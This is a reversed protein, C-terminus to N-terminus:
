ALRRCGTTDIRALLDSVRGKGPIQVAPAIDALPLLVFAREALRPHPVQLREDHVSADGYLLLDLDLVRPGWRRERRRGARAELHQLAALLDRSSLTSDVGVAANIFDAQDTVGWPPTLYLASRAVVGIAPMQALADMDTRVNAVPDGMNAGLGLYARVPESM